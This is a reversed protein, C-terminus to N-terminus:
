NKLASAVAIPVQIEQYILKIKITLKSLKVNLEYGEFRRIEKGIASSQVQYQM